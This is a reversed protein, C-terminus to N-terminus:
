TNQMPPILPLQIADKKKIIGNRENNTQNLLDLCFQGELSKINHFNYSPAPFRKWNTGLLFSWQKNNIDKIPERVFWEAKAISLVQTILQKYKNPYARSVRKITNAGFSLLFDIKQCHYNKAAQKMFEFESYPYGIPDAYVLGYNKIKQVPLYLLLASENNGEIIEFFEYAALADKLDDILLSSLECVYGYHPLNSKQLAKAALVPSGIFPSDLSIGPGGNLDYYYVANDADKQKTTGKWIDCLMKIIATFTEQKTITTESYVVGNKKTM